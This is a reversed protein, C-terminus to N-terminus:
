NSSINIQVNFRIDHTTRSFTRTSKPNTSTYTYEFNSRFTNSFRYGVVISGNFRSQGSIRPDTISYITPDRVIQESGVQLANSIDQELLFREEKDDIFNGNLSIDVDNQLTRLFPLRFNQITYAFSFNVGKSTRETVQVNSLAMSTVMSTEYGIQTRLGNDWTINLQALPAFRREVNLSNPEYEPRFSIVSYAGVNRSIESGTDNNLSWGVRYRGSYSHTLSARQMFRNVFPLLNEMGTWTVRWNPLPIPTFNREGVSNSGGLYAERFDEQLTVRSLVTRGDGDGLDDSIINEGVPMDGFATELQREFLDRYGGGFAWVSSSINGSATQVTSIESGPDLSISETMREDWQTQWTLDLTINTFPNFRASLNINDNYTNNAPLQIISEGDINDILQNTSIREELGMRYLFGPSIQDDNFMDYFQSGGAYGAQSSTKATNYNIDLSQLSFLALLVKRGFYFAQEDIGYPEVDDDDRNRRATRERSAQRDSDVADNYTSSKRLLSNINLRLTHDLRFSNSVSAGLNSGFASNQWRFGGSYRANYNVWQLASVQNLRPQWSATYEESYTDRRPNLTDSVLDRLVEFTPIPEFAEDDVGGLGADRVTFRGLDFTNRSQFSTSISRTLNYGLGFVTNYTFNHNQQLPLEDQGELVRRKREDYSRNTAISTTVNNPRLGLGLGSLNSLLPVEDLFRFPRWFSVNRFTHSYRLSANYSWDNQFLQQPNRGSRTTYNYSLTTNDVTYRVLRNESNRKTINSLNIAYSETYTEAERRQERILQDQDDESLNESARVASEFDSMRIDGQNPLFKPISSSQRTSLSVPINWGYREPILRHLNVTTSLDYATQNDVRRQGLRSNLSGFGQTQRTLNGNVTAFDAMQFRASANAAWGRENDYGSVRLENLWLEADVIPTGPGNPQDPDYPNRIGMGIETVRGLSPNGRIAIVAGPVANELLDGREYVGDLDIGFEQDRLQKLQNFASLVINMSNEDYLWIQEAEERLQPNNGPDFNQFPFNEDSPSVPQRYEYYNNELDNGFRMVLEVEDRSNYGEGHVFMRMNSYDLLNLGGPYVRKILQVSQPGLNEAQLVISQENQLSQLQSGRDQARIAGAPQRYPFPRRNSNEEINITSIRINANPDNQQNIAEDQRWQSGVFEMTAFRLTFPQEYGSMWFRIYTINQFDNINGVQRKFEEIPIRVQYWRDQQPDGPNGVEDVIYTGPEGIRLRSQDAPNFDVEYQYYANTLNVTSPNVLGESDPRNTIARNDSQDIPTNGDPFGLLRHFREHLPLGDSASAGYFRYDDNSPDEFIRQFEESEEGYQQRMEEIFDAFVTQENLGNVGGSNPLGDLGVDELERNENSFQGEPPPPNAPLASRPNDFDDLILNDPNLALGDETNNKSNPIVDESVLGIDIFIKGDYDEIMAGGPLQGGPLVPQVWFELFEINNQTFDEQGSPIVATMGGWTREPEQELLERLNMNYNYQGRLTPNFHVDLTNIIEDQPNQTERGPFVDRVNVPQSEPTFEVGGIISSINRPITYFSFKSRLDSRDRRAQASGSPPSQFDDEEFIQADPEYGPVAAPAAALNWRNANLLSLKISSGEFDDIFSLGEEEDPFLEDNRIARRVARTEAVGPRLQAFEGSFTFESEARTQLLPLADLARTVFPTDFRANADFGLISNSIPEDGIRIKDDLPRENFRFYTGGFRIDNNVEYEARIGTFTKQEISTFAQNEYEITIDQGPATYRDNLITISGFSYDVQYDVDEQLEVGNARVRVSGEVLAIGLNYNEQVGGRSTGEFRYFENKSRQAANRQRELYLERYALREIDDASAPSDELLEILRNGFPELYPFIIRGEQANLTGTGFDIENNPNLAGQSDVRDLGLDQMLTTTRGPLRNQSVNGETFQLELELNERTLNSVGLSYINRMTLPFLDNDTSVNRPRLMKLYIRDGGGQNIEGVNVIEGGFGRYNFAVALVERSGLSQRLSIYGSVKNITYDEGERLPTFYGEEFNRSDEIGLDEASVGEQPDRFQDLIEPSFRDGENNPPIYGGDPSEIVGMDALAVARRAGEDAQVTERLKWVEVDAIQLTQSLQQPNSLSNEFEQRTYFDLFFHRDDDYEAPRVRIQQEQSGGSITEVNSEGDQQSVISTVRLPGFEAISKIGFLAGSGRILSNGTNMSVNGMEIRKLIEDDYGEYVISLRNQYDFTRETDWDTQITLKDGITGQINLQLSQEFTPDIRTRQDEPLNVDDPSKQISAGVNMSAVGNVRLNVEPRGFITTFASQEGGPIALSFDLLGRGREERQRAEQVLQSWNTKLAQQFNFEEYQEFTYYTAAGSPYGMIFKRAFFDGEETREIQVEEAPLTIFYVRPIPKLTPRTVMDGRVSRFAPRLDQHVTDQIASLTDQETETQAYGSVASGM